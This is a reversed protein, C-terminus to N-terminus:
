KGPEVRRLLARCENSFALATRAVDPPVGAVLSLSALHNMAKRLQATVERATDNSARV